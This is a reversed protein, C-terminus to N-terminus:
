RWYYPRHWGYGPRAPVVVCASLSSAALALILARIMWNKTM